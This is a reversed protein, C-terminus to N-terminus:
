IYMGRRSKRYWCCCKVNRYDLAPAVSLSLDKIILNQTMLWIHCREFLRQLWQNSNLWRSCRRFYKYGFDIWHYGLPFPCYSNDDWRPKAEKMANCMSNKTNNRYMTNSNSEIEGATQQREIQWYDFRTKWMRCTWGEEQNKIDAAIM